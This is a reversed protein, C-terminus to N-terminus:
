KTLTDISKREMVDYQNTFCRNIILDAIQEETEPTDDRIWKLLVMFIGGAFYDSIYQHTRESDHDYVSELQYSHHSLRQLVLHELNQDFLQKLLPKNSKMMRFVLVLDSRLDYKSLNKLREFYLDFTQDMKWIILEEKTKFHRYFTQRSVGAKKVIQAVTIDKYPFQAMLKQLAECLWFRSQNIQEQRPKRDIQSV